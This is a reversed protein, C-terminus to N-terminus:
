VERLTTFNQERARMEARGTQRTQRLPPHGDAEGVM